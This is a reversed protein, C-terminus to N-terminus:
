KAKARERAKRMTEALSSDEKIEIKDTFLKLHRGLLENAKLKDYLRIRKTEGMKVGEIFEEYVDVSSIAKRISVPIQSIPLMRGDEGFLDAIDFDAIEDIRRLVKEATIELEKARNDMLSQIMVKVLPNDMLQGAIQPASRESYGARKAAESANLDKIYEYCFIKQRDTLSDSSRPM